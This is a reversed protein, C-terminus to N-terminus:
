LLTWSRTRTESYELRDRQLRKRRSHEVLNVVSTMKRDGEPIQAPQSALISRCSELLLVGRNKRARELARVASSTLPAEAPYREIKRLTRVYERLEKTPFM